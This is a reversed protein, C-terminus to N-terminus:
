RFSVEDDEYEVKTVKGARQHGKGGAAKGNLPNPYHNGNTLSSTSSASIHRTKVHSSRKGGDGAQTEPESLDSLDSDGHGGVGNTM